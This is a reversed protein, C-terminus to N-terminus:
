REALHTLTMTQNHLDCRGSAYPSIEGYSYFGLLQSGAPMLQHVAEVEDEARERLILRRGVCSIAVTLSGPGAAAPGGLGRAADEAGDVLRDFNARMLQVLSGQPMDGAFTMSRQQEDVSLITRVVAEEDDRVRRLSLPFLLASAPLEAALDGLYRKYLDLAPQGDIEYLVNGAARTVRREPGFIDWGGRSGHRIVVRDGYFGVASIWGTTPTGDRLTWTRQFRDDDGALGGTVTVSAPLAGVLGTVLETGNVKLGDSLVMVGRLDPATLAAAITRGAEASDDASNVAAGTLRLRTGEFRSVAVAVTRDFVSTGLIEGATSCGVVKARPYAAALQRLPTPDELCARSGFALVLTDEGDLAPFAPQSWSQGLTYSFTETKM